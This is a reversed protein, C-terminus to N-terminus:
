RLEVIVVSSADLYDDITQRGKVRAIAGMRLEGIIWTGPSVKFDTGNIAFKTAQGRTVEGELVFPQSAAGTSAGGSRYNSRRARAREARSRGAASWGRGRGTFPFRADLLESLPIPKFFVEPLNIARGIKFSISSLLTPM